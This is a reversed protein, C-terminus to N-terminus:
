CKGLCMPAAHFPSRLYLIKGSQDIWFGVIHLVTILCPVVEVKSLTFHKSVVILKKIGVSDEVMMAM